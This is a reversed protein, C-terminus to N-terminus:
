FLYSLRLLYLNQVYSYRSVTSRNDDREASLELSLDPSFNRRLSVGLRDFEDVRRVTVLATNQTFVDPDHYRSRAYAALIKARWRVDFKWKLSASLTDATPSVSFFQTGTHLDNRSDIEHRYGLSFTAADINWEGRAGLYYYHGGLYGYNTGGRVGAVGGDLMLKGTGGLAHTARARLVLQTELTSSGFRFYSLDAATELKWAGASFRYRPGGQLLIQDYGSVATYGRYYVSGTMQLGHNWTGNVVGAGGALMGFTASGRQSPTVATATRRLVVNSDYGSEVDLFGVAQVPKAAPIRQLQRQALVRLSPDNATRAVTSFLERANDRDGTRLAILGLNYRAYQGYGPDDVIRSFNERASDLNGLKFEIAGLDYFLVPSHLGEARAREFAARAAAYRGQRFLTVGSSFAADADNGAAFARHPCVALIALALAPIFSNIISNRRKPCQAM